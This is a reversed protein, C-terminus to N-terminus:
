NVHLGAISSYLLVRRLPGSLILCFLSRLSTFESAIVNTGTGPPKEMCSIIVEKWPAIFHDWSPNLYKRVFYQYKDLYSFNQKM